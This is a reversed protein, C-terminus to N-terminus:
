EVGKRLMQRYWHQGKGQRLSDVQWNTSYFHISVQGSSGTDLWAVGAKKYREVVSPNPFSWKGLKATSAIAVDPGVVKIFQSISSTRSGHHPVMIIDSSLKHPERVLIWEVVADIDGTLLISQKSDSQIVRVVCSHPNYARPVSQNPWIFELELAGWTLTQGAICRTSRHLDESSIVYEPNWNKIIYAMGGSHDNDSHSLILGKVDSIGHFHLFPTIIQEAISSEQWAMGTDYIFASNGQKIVVALGHGVDLVFVQWMPKEKWETIAIALCICALGKGKKNLFPFILWLAFLLCLWVTQEYSLPFWSEAAFSMVYLAPQISYDVWTWLYTSALGIDLILASLSLPVVVVSFWSVFVINYFFSSLSIGYFLLAVAPIMGVVLAFQLSLLKKWYTLPANRQAAFLLIVAVAWMTLWLSASVSSFPDFFLLLSLILLWQYSPPIRYLSTALLSALCCALIARQTPISFGALWAYCISFFIALVIPATKWGWFFRLVMKGVLWGLGFIIGIHLGSIAMLHSLGSAKLQQKQDDSLEDRVGFTLALIIGKSTFGNVSDAVQQFWMHRRSAVTRVWYRSNALVYGRGVVRQQLAFKEADFGVDNLLGTITKLRIKAHIEDRVTLPIPSVLWINPRFLTPITKGNIASM